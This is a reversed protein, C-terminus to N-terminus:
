YGALARAIVDQSFVIDDPCGYKPDPLPAQDAIICIRLRAMFDQTAESANFSDLDSDDLSVIAGYLESRNSDAHRLLVQCRVDEEDEYLQGIKDVVAQPLRASDCNFLVVSM